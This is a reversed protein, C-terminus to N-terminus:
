KCDMVYYRDRGMAQCQAQRTLPTGPPCVQFLLFNLAISIPNYGSSMKHYSSLLKSSVPCPVDTFTLAELGWKILVVTDSPDMSTDWQFHDKQAHHALILWLFSKKEGFNFHRPLFFFLSLFLSFVLVRRCIKLLQGLTLVDLTRM